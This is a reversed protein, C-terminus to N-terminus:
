FKGKSERRTLILVHANSMLVIFFVFNISQDTELAHQGFFTCLLASNKMDYYLGKSGYPLYNPNSFFRDCREGIRIGKL